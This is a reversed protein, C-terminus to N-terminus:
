GFGLVVFIKRLLALNESKVKTALKKLNEGMLSVIKDQFLLLIIQMIWCHKESKKSFWKYCSGRVKLGSDTNLVRHVVLLTEHVYRPRYEDQDALEEIM